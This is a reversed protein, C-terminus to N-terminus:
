KDLTRVYTVIRLMEGQKMGRRHFSQMAGSAGGYIISFMGPDTLVQKFAFCRTLALELQESTGILCDVEDISCVL